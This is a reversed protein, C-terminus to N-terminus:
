FLHGYRTKNKNRPIFNKDRSNRDATKRIYRNIYIDKISATAREKDNTFVIYGDNSIVNTNEYFPLLKNINREAFDEYDKYKLKEVKEKKTKTIVINRPMKEQLLIDVAEIEPNKSFRKKLIENNLLNNISLM